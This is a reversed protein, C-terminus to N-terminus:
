ADFVEKFTVSLAYLDGGLARTQVGQQADLRFLGRTRLPPTWYFPASGRTAELFARIAGIEQGDGVFRLPWSETVNRVGDALAQSYGDGFQVTHVRFHTIGEAGVSPSWTFTRHMASISM